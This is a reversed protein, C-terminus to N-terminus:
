IEVVLIDIIDHFPRDLRQKYPIKERDFIKGSGISGPQRACKAFGTVRFSIYISNGFAASM